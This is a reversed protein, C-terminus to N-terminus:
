ARARQTKLWRQIDAEEWRVTKRSLRLVPRPFDPRVEYNKRLTGPEIGIMAAITKRDIM